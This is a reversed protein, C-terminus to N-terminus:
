AIAKSNLHTQDISFQKTFTTSIQVKLIVNESFIIIIEPITARSVLLM